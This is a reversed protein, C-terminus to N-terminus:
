RHEQRNTTTAENLMDLDFLDRDGPVDNRADRPLIAVSTTKRAIPLVRM